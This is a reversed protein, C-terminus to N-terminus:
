SSTDSYSLHIKILWLPSNNIFLHIIWWKWSVTKKTVIEKSSQNYIYELIIKIPRYVFVGRSIDHTKKQPSLPIVEHDWFPPSYAIMFVWLGSQSKAKKNKRVFWFLNQKNWLVFVWSKRWPNEKASFSPNSGGSTHGEVTKLVAANSWEAM